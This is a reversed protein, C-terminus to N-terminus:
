RLHKGLFTMVRVWADDKSESLFLTRSGHEGGVQVYLEKDTSAIPDYVRRAQAEENTPCVVLTPVDLKKAAELISGRPPLYDGPSFSLVAALGKTEAGVFIALSSSYSSGWIAMKGTFGLERAWKIARVLDAKADLYGQPKNAEAARKATENVVDNWELGGAGSRQDLALCNYGAKVLRPAIKRYEGRSSHAQHFLLIIPARKDDTAYLDATLQLGDAGKSEITKYPKAPEPAPDPAPEPDPAPDPKPAPDPAPEPDPAPDPEPKPEPVAPWMVNPLRRVAARKNGIARQLFGAIFSAGYDKVPSMHDDIDPFNVFVSFGAGYFRKQLGRGFSVPFAPDKQGHFIGIKVHKANALDKPLDKVQLAANVILMGQYLEPKAFLLGATGMSGRSFALLVWPSIKVAPHHTACEQLAANLAAQDMKLERTPLTEIVVLQMHKSVSPYITGFKNALGREVILVPVVKGPDLDDPMYYTGHKGKIQKACAEGPVAVLLLAVVLAACAVGALGYRAM